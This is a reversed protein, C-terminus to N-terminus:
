SHHNRLLFPPAGRRKSARFEVRWTTTWERALYKFIGRMMSRGHILTDPAGSIFATMSPNQRVGWRQKQQPSIM